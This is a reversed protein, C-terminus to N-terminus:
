DNTLPTFLDGPDVRNEKASLHTPTIRFVAVPNADMGSRYREVMRATVPNRYYGPMLKEVLGQLAESAEVPDTVEEAPGFIMVSTYATDAHCPVPDTATGYETYVTFSALPHNRLLEVKKGSGMGHFYISGQDWLYNVPVTYPYEDTALGLVGVRQDHLFSDILEPDACVRATYAIQSM